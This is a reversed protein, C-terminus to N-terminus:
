PVRKRLILVQGLGGAVKPHNAVTSESPNADDDMRQGHTDRVLAVFREPEGDKRAMAKAYYSLTTTPDTRGLQALVYPSSEGLPCSRPERRRPSPPHLDETAPEHGDAM